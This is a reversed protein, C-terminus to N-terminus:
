KFPPRHPLMVFPQPSFSKGRAPTEVVAQRDTRERRSLISTQKYPSEFM